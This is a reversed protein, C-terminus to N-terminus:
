DTACMTYTYTWYQQNSIATVTAVGNTFSASVEWTRTTLVPTSEVTVTYSVDIDMNIDGACPCGDSWETEAVRVLEVDSITSEFAFVADITTDAAVHAEVTFNDFGNILASDTDLGSVEIDFYGSLDTHTGTAVENVFSWHRIYRLYDLEAALYLYLNGTMFKVSDAYSYTYTDYDGEFIKWHWGDSYGASYVTAGVKGAKDNPISNIDVPDNLQGQDRVPDEYIKSVAESYIVDVSDLYNNIQTQAILFDTDTESGPTLGNTATSDDSSCGGIVLILIALALLGFGPFRFKSGM